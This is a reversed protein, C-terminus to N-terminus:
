LCNSYWRNTTGTVLRTWGCKINGVVLGYATDNNTLQLQANDSSNGLSPANLTSSASIKAKGTVDIGGSDIRMRETTVVASDNSGGTGVGFALYETGWNGTSYGSTIDATRRQGTDPHSVFTGYFALDAVRSSTGSGSKLALSSGNTAAVGGEIVAKNNNTTSTGIGVNGSADIRMRETTGGTRLLIQGNSQLADINLNANSTSTGLRWM